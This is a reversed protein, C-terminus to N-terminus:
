AQIDKHKMVVTKIDTPVVARERGRLREIEAIMDQLMSLRICVQSGSATERQIGKARELIDTM